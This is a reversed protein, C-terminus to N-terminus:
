VSTAWGGLESQDNSAPLPYGLAALKPLDEQIPSRFRIRIVNDESKLFRKVDVRWARFMNDASLVQTGNVYVEAYTDLGDCVLEVREQSQVEPELRFSTEYEWDKKDIWQLDHENTGYFPDPIIGNHLLDTHVCGPVKAPLWESEDSAKFKWAHLKLVNLTM